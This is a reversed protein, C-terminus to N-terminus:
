GCGWWIRHIWFLFSHWVFHGSGLLISTQESQQSTSGTNSSHWISSWGFRLRGTSPGNVGGHARSFLSWNMVLNIINALNSLIYMSIFIFKNINVTSLNQIKWPGPPVMYGQIQVASVIIKWIPGVYFNSFPQKANKHCYKQRLILQYHLVPLKPLRLQSHNAAM